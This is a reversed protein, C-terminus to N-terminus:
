EARAPRGCRATEPASRRRGSAAPEHGNRGTTQRRGAPPSPTAPPSNEKPAEVKATSPPPEAVPKSAEPQSESGGVSEGASGAVPKGGMDGTGMGDSHLDSTLTDDGPSKGASPRTADDASRDRDKDTPRRPRLKPRSQPEKVVPLAAVPTVVEARRGPWWIYAAVSILTLCVLGVTGLVYRAAPLKGRGGTVVDDSRPGSSGDLEQETAPPVASVPQSPIPPPVAMARRSGEVVSYPSESEGPQPNGSGQALWEQWARRVDQASTFRELPDVATMTALIASLSPPTDPRLSLLGSAVDKAWEVDPGDVLGSVPPRGTLLYWATAGLSFIDSSVDGQTEGRRQEPSRYDAVRPGEDPAEKRALVHGLVALRGVGMGLIKIVGKEDLMLNEPRLDRHIIGLAHAHELGDATQAVYDAVVSFPLQGDEAVLRQLDRGVIYEMVMYYQDDDSDIDLVHVLNHHDLAAVQRADDLFKGVIEPRQTYRRSLTKIAVERRLQIHEALFVRGYEGRGIQGCLRHNGLRLKTWGVLLQGAQWRTLLGKAILRRALMRSTPTEPLMQRVVSLQNESLIRSEELLRLFDSPTKVEATNAM